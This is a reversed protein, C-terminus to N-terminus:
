YLLVIKSLHTFFDFKVQKHLIISLEIHQPDATVKLGKLTSLKLKLKQVGMTICSPHIIHFIGIIPVFDTIRVNVFLSKITETKLATEPYSLTTSEMNALLIMM